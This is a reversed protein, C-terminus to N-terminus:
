RPNMEINVNSSAFRGTSPRWLREAARTYPVSFIFVRSVNATYANSSLTTGPSLCLAHKM